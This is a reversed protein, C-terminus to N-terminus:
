RNETDRQRPPAFHRTLQRVVIVLLGAGIAFAPRDEVLWLWEIALIGVPIFVLDLSWVPVDKFKLHQFRRWDM